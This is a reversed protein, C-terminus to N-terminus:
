IAAVHAIGIGVDSGVKGHNQRTASETVTLMQHEVTLAVIRKGIKVYGHELAKADFRIFEGGARSGHATQLQLDLARFLSTSLPLCM